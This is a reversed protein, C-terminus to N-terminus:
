FFLNGVRFRKWKGGGVGSFLLVFSSIVRGDGAFKGARKVDLGRLSDLSKQIPVKIKSSLQAVTM